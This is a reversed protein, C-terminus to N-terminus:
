RMQDDFISGDRKQKYYAQFGGGLALVIAAERQLQLATKQPRPGPSPKNSFSWAM